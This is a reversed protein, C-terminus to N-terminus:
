TGSAHLAVALHDLSSWSQPEVGGKTLRATCLVVTCDGTAQLIQLYAHALELYLCSGKM